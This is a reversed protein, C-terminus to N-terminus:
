YNGYNPEQCKEMLMRYTQLPREEEIKKEVLYQLFFLNDNNSKGPTFGTQDEEVWQGINDRIKEHIVKGFLRTVTRNHGRM